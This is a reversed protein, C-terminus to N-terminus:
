ESTNESSQPENARTVEVVDSEKSESYIIHGNEDYRQFLGEYLFFKTGTIWISNSSLDNFNDTKETYMGNEPNVEVHILQWDLEPPLEGNPGLNARYIKYHDNFRTSTGVSYGCLLDVNEGNVWAEMEFVRTEDSFLLNVSLFIVIILYCSLCNKM